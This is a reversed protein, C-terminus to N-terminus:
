HATIEKVANNRDPSVTKEKVHKLNAISRPNKGRRSERDNGNLWKEVLEKEFEYQDPVRLKPETKCNNKAEVFSSFEGGFPMGPKHGYRARFDDTVDECSWTDKGIKNEIESYLVHEWPDKGMYKIRHVEGPYNEHGSEVLSQELESFTSFMSGNDLLKWNYKM